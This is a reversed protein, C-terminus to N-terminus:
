AEPLDFAQQVVPWAPEGDRTTVGDLYRKVKGANDRMWALANELDRAREKASQGKKKPVSEDLKKFVGTPDFLTDDAVKDKNELWNM